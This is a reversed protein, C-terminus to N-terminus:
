VFNTLDISHVSSLAESPSNSATVCKYIKDIKNSDTLKPKILSHFKRFTYQSMLLSILKPNNLTESTYSTNIKDFVEYISYIEEKCQPITNEFSEEDMNYIYFIDEDIIVQISIACLTQKNLNSGRTIKFALLETAHPIEKQVKTSLTRLTFDDLSNNRTTAKM